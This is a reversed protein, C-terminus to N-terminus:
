SPCSDTDPSFIHVISTLQKSSEDQGTFTNPLSVTSSMVGNPQSPRLVEICVFLCVHGPSKTILGTFELFDFPKPSHNLFGTCHFKLLEFLSPENVM